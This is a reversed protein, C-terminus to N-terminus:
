FIENFFSLMANWSQQDANKDYKLANMGRTDSKPNTFSHLVNGYTIMNWDAGAKDLTDQFKTVIERPIFPDANGHAILMKAKEERESLPARGLLTADGNKAFAVLEELNVDAVADGYTLMFYDDDVFKGALKTRFGTMSNDGTEVLTVKWDVNHEKGCIEVDGNSLDVSFNRNYNYFNLFYDRIVDGKYGLALIFEKHGYHAYHKMIHWLIPHEGVEVMPKPKIQTEEALRTGLGGCLIVAKM